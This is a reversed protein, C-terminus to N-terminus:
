APAPVAASTGNLVALANAFVQEEPPLPILAKCASSLGQMERLQAYAKDRAEESLNELIVKLADAHGNLAALCAPTYGSNNAKNLDAKADALVKLADAHGNAAALCAPTYGDNEAKNLDAKADALVKLADANGNAAALCAPTYDHKDAKNLPDAGCAILAAAVAPNTVKYCIDRLAEIHNSKIAAFIEAGLDDAANKFQTKADSGM